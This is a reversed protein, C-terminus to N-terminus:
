EEIGCLQLAIHTCLCQHQKETLSFVDLEELKKTYKNRKYISSSLLANFIIGVNLSDMALLNLQLNWFSITQHRLDNQEKIWELAKQHAKTHEIHQKLALSYSMRGM